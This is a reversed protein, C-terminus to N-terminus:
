IQGIIKVRFLFFSVQKINCSARVGSVVSSTELIPAESIERLRPGAFNGWFVRFVAFDALFIESYM